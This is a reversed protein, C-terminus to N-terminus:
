TKAEKQQRTASYCYSLRVKGTTIQTAAAM